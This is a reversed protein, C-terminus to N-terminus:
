WWTVHERLSIALFLNSMQREVVIVWEVVDPMLMHNAFICTRRNSSQNPEGISRSSDWVRCNTVWIELKTYTWIFALLGQKSHVIACRTSINEQKNLM